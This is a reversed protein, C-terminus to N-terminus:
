SLEPCRIIDLCKAYLIRLVPVSDLHRNKKVEIYSDGETCARVMSLWYKLGRNLIKCLNLM